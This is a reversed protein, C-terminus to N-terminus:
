KTPANKRGETPLTGKKQLFGGKLLGMTQRKKKRAKRGAFAATVGGGLHGKEKCTRGTRRGGECNRSERLREKKGPQNVEKSVSKKKREGV